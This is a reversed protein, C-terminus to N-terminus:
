LCQAPRLRAEWPRLQSSAELGESRVSTLTVIVSHTEASECVTEARWRWEMMTGGCEAGGPVRWQDWCARFTVSETAM